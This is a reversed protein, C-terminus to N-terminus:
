ANRGANKLWVWQGNGRRWLWCCCCRQSVSPAAPFLTFCHCCCNRPPSNKNGNIWHDNRIREDWKTARSDFKVQVSISVFLMILHALPSLLLSSSSSPEFHNLLWHGSSNGLIMKNLEDRVSVSKALTNKVQKIREWAKARSPSISLHQTLSHTWLHHEQM